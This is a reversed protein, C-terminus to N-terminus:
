AGARPPARGGILRRREALLDALTTRTGGDAVGDVRSPRFHRQFAAVVSRTRADYLGSPDLGYGVEGLDSQLAKVAAGSAGLDLVRGSGTREPVWLGVGAAHLRDWPFREGPDQKRGPAVDSHALIRDPPIRRREAIDHCLAVVAAIQADPYPPLGFDHGGNVIEIGVSASNLDSAGHWLARGAHWARRAESVLQLIAGDEEVLYHSSVQAAPNSLQRLAAAADAMGTYHLVIADPAM